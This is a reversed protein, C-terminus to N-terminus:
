NKAVFKHMQLYESKLQERSAKLFNKQTLQDNVSWSTDVFTYKSKPTLAM